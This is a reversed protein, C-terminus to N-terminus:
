YKNSGDAHSSSRSRSQERRKAKVDRFFSDGASLYEQGRNSPSDILSGMNPLFSSVLGHDYGLGLGLGQQQQSLSLSLACKDTLSLSTFAHQLLKNSFDHEGGDGSPIPCSSPPLLSLSASSSSSTAEVASSPEQQQQHTSPRTPTAASSGKATAKSADDNSSPDPNSATM